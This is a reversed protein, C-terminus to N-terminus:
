NVMNQDRYFVELLDLSTFHDLNEIAEKAEASNMEM